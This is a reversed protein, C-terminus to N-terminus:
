HRRSSGWTHPMETSSPRDSPIHKKMFRAVSATWADPYMSIYAEHGASKFEQFEKPGPVAAFVRRGDIITARPDNAGHMFLSPCTLSKAYEVPNHEFGNFGWQRGGWFVLL